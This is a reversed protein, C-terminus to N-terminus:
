SGSNLIFVTSTCSFEAQDSLNIRFQGSWQLLMSPHQADRWWKTDDLPQGEKQLSSHDEFKIICWETSHLQRIEPDNDVPLSRRWCMPIPRVLPAACEHSADKSKMRQYNANGITRRSWLGDDKDQALSIRKLLCLYRMKRPRSRRYSVWLMVREFVGVSRKLIM